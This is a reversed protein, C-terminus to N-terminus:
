LRRYPSREDEARALDDVIDDLMGQYRRSADLMSAQNYHKEVTRPDSDGLIGGVELIQEPARHAMTTAACDRFLHLNIAHGFREETMLGVRDAIAVDTMPGGKASAWLGDHCDAAPFRLRVDALYRALYPSLIKPVSYELAHHQKTEHRGFVLACGTGIM